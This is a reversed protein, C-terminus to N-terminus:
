AQSKPRLAAIIARFLMRNRSVGEEEVHLFPIVVLPRYGLVHSLAEAGRIRKDIMELLMVVGAAAFLSLFFGMGLIKIRNPKFPRDPLVPPELLSFRESMNESELNESIKANMRKGLLEEYKSQASDRDRTLVDLADAVRPTMEMAHENQSIKDQLMKKQRQLSDLRANVADIKAKIKFAALSTVNAPADNSDPMNTAQELADIKRKLARVDPHSQTYIASLKTYEAKLAPLTQSPDESMGHREAALEAELSRLEETGSRIDREVGYLDNEARSLMTTRLTLQEPL